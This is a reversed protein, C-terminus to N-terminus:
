DCASIKAITIGTDIQQAQRMMMMTAAAAVIVPTVRFSLLFCCRDCNNRGEVEPLTRKTRSRVRNKKKMEKKSKRQRIEGGGRGEM